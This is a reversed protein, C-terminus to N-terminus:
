FNLQRSLEMIFPVVECTLTYFAENFSRRNIEGMIKRCSYEINKCYLISEKIFSKQGHENLFIEVKKVVENVNKLMHIGEPFDNNLFKSKVYTVAEICTDVLDLVLYSNKKENIDM